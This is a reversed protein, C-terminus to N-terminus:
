IHDPGPAEPETTLSWPLGLHGHYAALGEELPRPGRLWQLRMPVESYDLQPDDGCSPCILEYADTQGRQLRGDATRAPQSRLFTTSGHGPQGALPSTM